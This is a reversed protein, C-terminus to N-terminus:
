IENVHVNGVGVRATHLAGRTSVGHVVDDPDDGIILGGAVHGVFQTWNLLMNLSVEGREPENFIHESEHESVCETVCYDFLRETVSESENISPM